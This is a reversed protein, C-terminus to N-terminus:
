CVRERGVSKRDGQIFDDIKGDAKNVLMRKRETKPGFEEFQESDNHWM